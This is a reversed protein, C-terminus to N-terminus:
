KFHPEPQVVILSYNGAGDGFGFAQVYPVAANAPISYGMATMSIGTGATCANTLVATSATSNYSVLTTNAPVGTGQIIQSTSSLGGSTLSVGTITTTGSCTATFQAGLYPDPQAAVQSYTPTSTQTTNLLNLNNGVANNVVQLAIGTPRDIV